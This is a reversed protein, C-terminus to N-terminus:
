WIKLPFLRQVKKKAEALAVIKAQRTTGNDRELIKPRGAMSASRAENKRVQVSKVEASKGMESFSIGTM